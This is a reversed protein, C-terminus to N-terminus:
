TSSATRRTWDRTIGGSCNLVCSNKRVRYSSSDFNTSVRCLLIRVADEQIPGAGHHYAEGRWSQLVVRPDTRRDHLILSERCVNDHLTELSAGTGLPFGSFFCTSITNTSILFGVPFKCSNCRFSVKFHQDRYASIDSQKMRMKSTQLKSVCHNSVVVLKSPHFVKLCVFFVVTM